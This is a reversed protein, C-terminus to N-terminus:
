SPSGYKPPLSPFPPHPSFGRRGDEPRSPSVPSSSVQTDQLRALEPQLYYQIGTLAGPLMLGRILLITLVVYPMTATVWVVLGSSKVGKFLSLYLMCYVLGLCIVLQWKPTGMDHLGESWQMELVGRHFYEAAPSHHLRSTTINSLVSSATAALGTLNTANSALLNTSEWCWETNWTNNCHLWPLEAAASAVMFYLAWGIIVNYYFSVYFAVMVACFGVGKFLPCVRWVSIPGQRNFQGLILEMYFLPVAGFVLMLTYPVLFAGGGNRYCLYPFRWVNALDVAFGIISLLFDANRGWTEREPDVAPPQVCAVIVDKRAKKHKKRKKRPASGGGGGAGGSACVPAASASASTDLIADDEAATDASDESGTLEDPSPSPVVYSKYGKDAVEVQVDKKVTPSLSAAAPHAPAPAYVGSSAASSPLRGGTPGPGMSGMSALNERINVVAALSPKHLPTSSGKHRPVGGCATSIMGSSHPSSNSSGYGDDLQQAASAISAPSAPAPGSVHEVVGGGGSGHDASSASSATALPAPGGGGPGPGGGSGGGPGGGPGGPNAAGPPGGGPGGRIVVLEM